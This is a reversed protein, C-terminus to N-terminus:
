VHFVNCLYDPTFNVKFIEKQRVEGMVETLKQIDERIEKLKENVEALCSSM